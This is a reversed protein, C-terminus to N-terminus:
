RGEGRERIKEAEETIKRLDSHPKRAQALIKLYANYYKPYKCRAMQELSFLRDSLNSVLYLIEEIKDM